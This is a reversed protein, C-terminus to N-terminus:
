LWNQKKLQKDKTQLGVLIADEAVKGNTLWLNNAFRM